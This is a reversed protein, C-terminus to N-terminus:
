TADKGDTAIVAPAQDPLARVREAIKAATHLATNFRYMDSRLGAAKAQDSQQACVHHEYEAVAVARERMDRAAADREATLESVRNKFTGVRHWARHGQCICPPAGVMETDTGVLNGTVDCRWGLANDFPREVIDAETSM